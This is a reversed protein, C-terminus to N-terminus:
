NYQFTCVIINLIVWIIISAFRLFRYKNSGFDNLKENFSSFDLYFQYEKKKKFGTCIGSSFCNLTGTDPNDVIQEFKMM